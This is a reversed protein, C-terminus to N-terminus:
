DLIEELEFRMTDPDRGTSLIELELYLPFPLGEGTEVWRIARQLIEDRGEDFELEM